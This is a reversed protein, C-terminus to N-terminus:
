PTLQLPWSQRIHIPVTLAEQQSSLIYTRSGRSVTYYKGWADHDDGLIM